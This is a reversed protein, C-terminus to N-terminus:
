EPNYLLKVTTLCTNLNISVEDITGCGIQTKILKYEDLNGTYIFKITQMLTKKIGIVSVNVTNAKINNAPMDYMYTKVLYNWSAYYNQPSAYYEYGSDLLPVKNLIPIVLENDLNKIPCLLVFGDNSFSSPNILMLDIDPSFQSVSIEEKQSKQVYNSDVDIYLGEFIDTCTDMWSFSYHSALNQCDFETSNQCYLVPKKNYADKLNTLDIQVEHEDNYSKGNNFYSIHEIKFKDGDLYWYCRFCNKLMDMIEKLSLEAKKAPADYDSVLINTKQTIHVYFKEQLVPNVPAYLFQSYEETEEFKINEDIKKLLAKIVAGISFSDKLTIETNGNKFLYNDNITDLKAWISTNVWQSRCVPLPRNFEYIVKLGDNTFYKGYDNIGYRTPEDSLESSGVINNPSLEIPCCRKYNRTDISIDEAPIDQTTIDDITIKDCVLRSYIRYSFINDFTAKDDSDSLSTMYFGNKRSDLYIRNVIMCNDKVLTRDLRYLAVDNKDYLTLSVVYDWGGSGDAIPGEIQLLKIHYNKSSSYWVGNTGSYLGNVGSNKAGVIKLETIANSFYFYYDKVLKKDEEEIDDLGGGVANTVESEWYTGAMFNSITNGGAIYLQIVPRKHYKVKSLAPALKIIDYTNEYSNIINDYLDKCAPQEIECIKKDNDFKCDSKGFVATYYESYSLQEAYYKDIIFYFKNELSASNIFEYDDGIFTIKGDLKSRFFEQLNEKNYKISLEKFHPEAARTFILLDEKDKISNDDKYFSFAIYYAGNEIKIDQKHKNYLSASRIFNNNADYYNIRSEPHLSNLNVYVSDYFRAFIHNTSIYHISDYYNGDSDIAENYRLTLFRVHEILRYKYKPLIM